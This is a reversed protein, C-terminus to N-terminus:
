SAGGGEKNDEAEDAPKEDGNEANPQEGAGEQAQDVDPKAEEEKVDDHKRKDGAAAKASTRSSRRPPMDETICLLLSANRLIM